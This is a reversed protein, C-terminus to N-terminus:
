NESTTPLVVYSWGNKGHRCWYWLTPYPVDSHQKHAERVSSYMVGNKTVARMNPPPLKKAKWEDYRQRGHPTHMPNNTLMVQRKKQRGESTLTNRGKKKLSIAARTGASHKRGAMPNKKGSMDQGSGRRYGESLFVPLFDRHIMIKKGDRHVWVKNKKALSMRELVSDDFEVGRGYARNIWKDRQKSVLRRLVTQEWILAKKPTTFTRRVSVVDPIGHRRILDHVISSSTFYCTMLDSPCCGKRYRVGYYWLNLDSWGVIYTFPVTKQSSSSM